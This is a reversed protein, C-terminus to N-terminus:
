AGEPERSPQKVLLVDHLHPGHRQGPVYSAPSLHWLSPYLTTLVKSWLKQPAHHTTFVYPLLLTKNNKGILYLLMTSGSSLLLETTKKIISDNIISDDPMLLATNSFWPKYTDFGDPTLIIRKPEMFNTSENVKFVVLNEGEYVPELDNSKLLNELIEIKRSKIKTKDFILYKVGIASLYRGINSIKNNEVLYKIFIIYSDSQYVTPLPSHWAPTKPWILIRFYENDTLMMEYAKKYENPLNKPEFTGKRDGTLLVWSNTISAAIISIYLLILIIAIILTRHNNFKKAKLLKRSISSFGYITLFTIIFSLPLLWKYSTRFLSGYPVYFIIYYYLQKVSEIPFRPASALTIFIILLISISLVNEKKRNLILALIAFSPLIIGSFKWLASILNNEILFLRRCPEWSDAHFRFSNLITSYKNLSTYMEETLPHVGYSLDTIKITPYIWFFSLTIFILLITAIGLLTKMEIRRRFCAYQTWLVLMSLLSWIIWRPDGSMLMLIIALMVSYRFICKREKLLKLTFYIVLPYLAYGLLIFLHPMYYVNIPNFVYIITSTFTILNIILKNQHEQKILSFAVFFMSFGILTFILLYILKELVEPSFPLNWLWSYIVLQQLPLPFQGYEYWLYPSLAKSYYTWHLDGTLAIGSNFIFNRLIIIALFLSFLFGFVHPFLREKM